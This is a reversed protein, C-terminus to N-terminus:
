KLFDSWSNNEDIIAVDYLTSSGIEGFTWIQWTFNHSTTDLTTVSLENSKVEETHNSLQITAQYNYTAKPLLSDFYIVTDAYSLIIDQTVTDGGAVSQNLTVTAPLQHNDTKDM